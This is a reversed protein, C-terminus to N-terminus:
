ARLLSVSLVRLAKLLRFNTLDRDYFETKNNWEVEVGVRNKFNDIHHTPIPIAQGDVEIKINFSKAAWGRSLLFGDLAIPIPSRGGGATLIDSKKLRFGTLCTSSM